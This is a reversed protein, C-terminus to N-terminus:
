GRAFTWWQNGDNIVGISGYAIGILGVGGDVNQGTGSVTINHTASGGDGDKIYYVQYKNATTIVPLTITRAATTNSVIIFYDDVLASYSIATTVTKFSVGGNALLAISSSVTSIGNSSGSQVDIFSAPTTTGIGLKMNGTGLVCSNSQGVLAGNGIAVANTLNNVSADAGTGLFVCNTYQANINGAHAGIAVTSEASTANGLSNAGIATLFDNGAVNAAAGFGFASCNQGDAIDILASVGCVTNGTASTANTAVNEGIFVNDGGTFTNNGVTKGILLNHNITDDKIVTAISVVGTGTTVQLVGSPLVSLAQSNPLGADPTQLIYTSSPDAGNSLNGIVGNQVSQLSNTTINYFINGNTLPTPLSSIQTTTMGPVAIGGLKSQVDFAVGPRPTNVISDPSGGAVNTTDTVLVPTTFTASNGMAM